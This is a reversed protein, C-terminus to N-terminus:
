AARRGVLWLLLPAGLFATVIGAELEGPLVLIRGLIDAGVLLAAGIVAAYPLRWRWDPGVALRALHPVALGLFAIPGALATSLGCLIVIAAFLAARLGQVRIGLAHTLADGLALANLRGGLFSLMAVLALLGALIAPLGPPPPRDLSGVVWFRYNDFIASNAMTVIGSLARISASVAAAILVLHVGRGSAPGARDLLHVCGAAGLAGGLAWAAQGGFGGGAGLALGAVVALAAGANIGLLGPEALPNRTLAQTLAGALGLAAGVAAGTETRPLRLKWVILATRGQDAHWLAQWVEAFALPRAGVALGALLLVALLLVLAALGALRLPWAAPRRSAALAPDAALPASSPM